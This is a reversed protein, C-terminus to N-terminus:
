VWAHQETSIVEILQGATKSHQFGGDTVVIWLQVGLVDCWFADQLKVAVDDGIPQRPVM